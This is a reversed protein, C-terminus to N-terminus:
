AFSESENCGGKTERLRLALFMLVNHLLVSTYLYFWMMVILINYHVLLTVKLIVTHHTACWCIKQQKQVTSFCTKATSLLLFFFSNYVFFTTTERPHCIAYFSSLQQPKPSNKPPWVPFYCKCTNPVSWIGLQFNWSNKLSYFLDPERM